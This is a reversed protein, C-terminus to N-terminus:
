ATQLKIAWAYKFQREDRLEAPIEVSIGGNEKCSRLPKSTGLLSVNAVEINKLIRLHVENPMSDDENLLGIAYIDGTRRNQTYYIDDRKYPEEPRSNYIAEGNIAMWDGIESLRDYAEQEFTGDPTPAVNLLLNGGKATVNVLTHILFRSSKYEPAFNHGWSQTMTICSEWPFGLVENPVTQEPTRYNEYPGQVTRDVVILDPQHARAMKVISAMDIDQEWQPIDYGWSRVEDNITSNPRVWGGDLWLIDIKGYGTMLEEIQNYTFNCFEKWMQPYKRTDYNNCRNPTAWLPSWYCPHHWDPKSFYVGNIFGEEAFKRFIEGAVNAKPNTHFPSRPSTIKFDTQKTDFMSFGDHHKTTFIMYKMGAYRAARAWPAPDFNQPNFESILEFYMKKYETYPMGGRDQFPQDESCLGWSEVIGLQSYLGWHMMLGFKLDQWRELNAEVLPDEPAIYDSKQFPHEQGQFIQDAM